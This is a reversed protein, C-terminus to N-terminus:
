NKPIVGARNALHVLEALSEARMKEMIRARHVKVTKETTGLTAAIQKNLRGGVVYGLVERERPTLSGLRGRIIALEANTQRNAAERELAHRLADLLADDDVPKTLFDAAGHKMARVSTPIDGCGTLFVIPLTCGIRNLTQQLEIGDLGPMTIDLLICGRAASDYADLFAQPSSFTAVRLGAMGLLRSMAKLISPDDDVVFVTPLGSKM